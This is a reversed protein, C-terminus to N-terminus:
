NRSKEAMARIMEELEKIKADQRKIQEQTEKFEPQLEVQEMADKVKDAAKRTLPTGCEPCFKVGPSIPENCIPCLGPRAAEHKMTTTIAGSKELAERETDEDCLKSYHRIMKSDPIGFHLKSIAASSYGDRQKQTISTIRFLKSRAGRPFKVGSKRSARTLARDLAIYTMPEGKDHGKEDLFIYDDDTANNQQKRLEVLWSKHLIVYCTIPTNTKQATVNIKVRQQNYELDRWKLGAVDVPRLGTDAMISIIAKDRITRAGGILLEIQEPTLVDSSKVSDFNVKPYKIEDLQDRSINVIGQLKHKENRSVPDPKSLYKTFTKITKILGRITDQSYPKGHQTIGKRIAEIGDLLDTYTMEEYPVKIYRRWQTLYTSIRQARVDEIEGKRLKNKIYAIILTKDSDTITGKDVARQVIHDYPYDNYVTFRPNRMITLLVSAYIYSALSVFWLTYVGFPAISM